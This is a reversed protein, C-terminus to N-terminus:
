KKQDYDDTWHLFALSSLSLICSGTMTSNYHIASFPATFINVYAYTRLFSIVQKKDVM